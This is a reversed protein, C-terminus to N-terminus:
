PTRTLQVVTTGRKYVLRDGEVSWTLQKGDTDTVNAWSEVGDYRWLGTGPRSDLVGTEWKKAGTLHTLFLFEKHDGTDLFAMVACGDLIRFAELTAKSSQWDGAIAEYPRFASDECRSGDSFTPVHDPNVPWDPEVAVRNFEM